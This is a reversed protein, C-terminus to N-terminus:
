LASGSPAPILVDVVASVDLSVLTVSILSLSISTDELWDRDKLLGRTIGARKEQLAPTCAHMGVATGRIDVQHLCIMCMSAPAHQACMFVGEVTLADIQWDRGSPRM